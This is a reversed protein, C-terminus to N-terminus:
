FKGKMLQTFSDINMNQLNIVKEQLEQNNSVEISITLSSKELYPDVEVNFGSKFFENKIKQIKEKLIKKTPDLLDEMEELLKKSKEKPLIDQRRIKELPLQHLLEEESIENKLSLKKLFQKFKHETSVTFYFGDLSIKQKQPAESFLELFINKLKDSFISVKEKVMECAEITGAKDSVVKFCFFPIGATKAAMAVGWAERDILHGIGKLKQAKEPDLIREFSTICDVGEEFSQFTKFQPKCDQALYLTRVKLIEGVLYREDLSGAIGVNFIQKIDYLPVTLSTKIAAEFPGEGTILLLIDKSGFLNTSKKELKFTEIIGQAEGFHAMTILNMIVSQLARKEKDIM